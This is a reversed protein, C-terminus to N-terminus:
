EQLLLSLEDDTTVPEQVASANVLQPGSNVVPQVTPQVSPTSQLTPQLVTTGKPASVLKVGLDDFKPLEDNKGYFRVLQLMARIETNGGNHKNPVTVIHLRTKKDKDLPFEDYHNYVNEYKKEGDKDTYQYSGRWDLEAKITPEKKLAAEVYQALKKPTIVEPIKFGLKVMLSAARSINKGKFIRTDVQTYVRQGEYDANNEIKAIMKIQFWISHPDDANELASLIGDKDLMLKVDYVNRPPPAGFEWADETLDQKMEIGDVNVEKWSTIPALILKKDKEAM